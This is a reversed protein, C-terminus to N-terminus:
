IEHCDLAWIAVDKVEERAKKKVIKKWGAKGGDQNGIKFILDDGGLEMYQLKSWSFKATEESIKIEHVGREDM